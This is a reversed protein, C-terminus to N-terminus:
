NSCHKRILARFMACNLFIPSHGQYTIREYIREALDRSLPLQLIEEFSANNLDLPQDPSIDQAALM